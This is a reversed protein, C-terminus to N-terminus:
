HSAAGKGDSTPTSKAAGGAGDKKSWKFGKAGGNAGAGSGSGSAGKRGESFANRATTFTSTARKLAEADKYAARLVNRPLLSGGHPAWALSDAVAWSGTQDAVQVGTLRRLLVELGVSKRSLGEAILLDIGYALPECEKKNRVSNWTISRVWAQLSGYTEAQALVHDVVSTGLVGTQAPAKADTRSRVPTVAAAAATASSEAVEPETDSGSLPDAADDDAVGANVALQALLGAKAKAKPKVATTAPMAAIIDPLKSAM